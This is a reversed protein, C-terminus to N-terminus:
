PNIKGAGAHRKGACAFHPSPLGVRLMEQEHPLTSVRRLARKLETLDESKEVCATALLARRDTLCDEDHATFFIVPVSPAFRRIQEIAELGGMVPMCLDLVIADPLRRRVARVAEAGESALSVQYGEMELERRCFERINRNDDVILVTKMM